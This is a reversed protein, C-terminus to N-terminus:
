PRWKRLNAELSALTQPGHLRELVRGRRVVLTTPLVQPRAYGLVVDPDDLLVAIRVDMQAVQRALVAPEPLDYHVAYLAVAAPYRRQFEALEPMEHLCPRCWAAWYNLYVLRSERRLDVSEGDLLRLRGESQPPSCAALLGLFICVWALSGGAM